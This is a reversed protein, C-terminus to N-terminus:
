KFICNDEYQKIIEMVKRMDERVRNIKYNKFWKAKALKEEEMLIKELLSTLKAYSGSTGVVDDFWKDIDDVNGNLRLNEVTPIFTKNKMLEKCIFSQVYYASSTYSGEISSSIAYFANNFEENAISFNSFSHIINIIDETQKVNIIEELVVDKSKEKIHALDHVDYFIHSLGTRMSVIEEDYSIENISSNIAHNFEHIINDLM